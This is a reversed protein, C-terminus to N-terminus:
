DRARRWGNPRTRLAIVAFVVLAVGCLLTIVLIELLDEVWRFRCCRSVFRRKQKNLHTM